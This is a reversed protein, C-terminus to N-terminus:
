SIDDIGVAEDNGAANTTMIRLQLQAQNDCAPPLVVNVATVQVDTGVTTADAVYAAPVNTYPGAGGVRYQLAVRQIADDASAEIDRVNYAVTVSQMGTTNLHLLLYPADATGSGFIAVTPNAIEFETCGGTFFLTPDPKNANIDVVGPADDALLTQPDVGTSATINDGRFGIIGPVASWDDDVTILGLNTWDQSFPLTQYTGNASAPSVFAALTLAVFLSSCLAIATKRM